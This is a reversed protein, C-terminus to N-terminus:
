EHSLSKKILANMRRNEYGSRKQEALLENLTFGSSQIMWEAIQTGGAYAYTLYVEQISYIFGRLFGADVAKTHKNTM